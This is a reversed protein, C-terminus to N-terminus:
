DGSDDMGSHLDRLRTTIAAIQEDSLVRAVVPFVVKEEKSAHRVLLTKAEGAIDRLEKLAAEQGAEGVKVSDLLRAMRKLKDEVALHARIDYEAEGTFFGILVDVRPEGYSVM